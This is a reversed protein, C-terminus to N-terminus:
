TNGIHENVQESKGYIHKQRVIWYDKEDISYKQVYRIDTCIIDNPKVSIQKEGILPLGISILKGIARFDKDQELNYVELLGDYTKTNPEYMPEVLCYDGVMDFVGEARKIAIANAYDVMWYDKGDFPLLNGYNYGTNETPMYKGLFNEVDKEGGKIRDVWTKTKTDFLGVEYKDNMMYVRVLRLGNPNSWETTYPNIPTERTFIDGANDFQKRDMIVLYSFVIEDGKKVIKRINPRDPDISDRGGGISLRIPVSMVKGVITVNWEPRFTTDQYFKIGNPSILEDQFVKPLEVIINNQICIPTSM